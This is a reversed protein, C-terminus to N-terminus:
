PRPGNLTAGANIAGNNTQNSNVVVTNRNGQVVVNLNNGIATSGGINTGGGSGVGGNLYSSSANSDSRSYASGNQQIIGDVVLRNGNADRTTGRSAQATTYRSAGYGAQFQGAGASGTSQAAASGAPLVALVAAAAVTMLTLSHSSM